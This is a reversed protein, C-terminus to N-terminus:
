FSSYDRGNARLFIQTSSNNINFIVIIDFPSCIAIIISIYYIAFYAEYEAIIGGAPLIQLTMATYSLHNLVTFFMYLVYYLYARDKTFYFIFLNYFILACMAGFFLTLILQHHIEQSYLEDKDM